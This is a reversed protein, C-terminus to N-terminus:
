VKWREKMEAKGTALKGDSGDVVDRNKEVVRFVTGKEFELDLLSGFV